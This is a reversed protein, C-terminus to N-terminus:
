RLAKAATERIKDIMNGGALIVLGLMALWFVVIALDQVRDLNQM